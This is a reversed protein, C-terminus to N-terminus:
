WIKKHKRGGIGIPRCDTLAQADWASAPARTAHARRHAPRQNPHAGALPVVFCATAGFPCRIVVARYLMSAHNHTARKPAVGSGRRPQAPKAQSGAGCPAYLFVVAMAPPQSQTLLQIVAAAGKKYVCVCILNKDKMVAFYRGWKKIEYM